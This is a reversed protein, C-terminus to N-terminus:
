NLSLVVTGIMIFILAVLKPKTLVEKYWFIGIFTGMLISTSRVAVVYALPGTSLALLYTTYSLGSLTGAINLRKINKKISVLERVGSLRATIYIAVVGGLTSVFSYYAPSSATIALKDLVGALAILMLALLTYFNAKDASFIKLPNHLYRGKLNLVYVGTVIIGIGVAAGMSPRQHILAWGTLLSFIPGLSQLPLIKSLEGRKLAGIYLFSNLPYFGIWVLLTPIWFNAGLTFPNFIKGTLILVMSIVPLSLLQVMWGITFHNLKHTLQKEGARRVSAFLASILAYIFWM